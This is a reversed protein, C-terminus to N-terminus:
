EESQTTVYIEGGNKDAMETLEMIKKDLQEWKEFKEKYTTNDNDHNFIGRWMEKKTTTAVSLDLLEDVTLKM